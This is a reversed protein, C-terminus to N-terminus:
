QAAPPPPDRPLVAAAGIRVPGSQRLHALHRRQHRDRSRGVHQRGHDVAPRHDAVIAPAAPAVGTDAPGPAGASVIAVSAARGCRMQAAAPPRIMTLSSRPEPQCETPRESGSALVLTRPMTALASAVVRTTEELRPM